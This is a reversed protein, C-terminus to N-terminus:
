QNLILRKDGSKISFWVSDTLYITDITKLNFDNINNKLYGYGKYGEVYSWKVEDYKVQIDYDIGDKKLCSQIVLIDTGRANEFSGELYGLNIEDEAILAETKIAGNILVYSKGKPLYYRRLVNNVPGTLIISDQGNFVTYHTNKFLKFSQQLYNFKEVERSVYFYQFGFLLIVLFRSMHINRIAYNVLWCVGVIGLSFLVNLFIFQKDGNFLKILIVCFCFAGIALSNLNYIRNLRHVLIEYDKEVKKAPSLSSLTREASQFLRDDIEKKAKYINQTDGIVEVVEKEKIYLFDYNFLTKLTKKTVNLDNSQASKLVKSLLHLEYQESPKKDGYYSGDLDKDFYIIYKDDFFSFHIEYYISEYFSIRSSILRKYKTNKADFFVILRDYLHHSKLEEFYESSFRNEELELLCNQPSFGFKSAKAPDFGPIPDATIFVTEDQVKFEAKVIFYNDLTKWGFCQHCKVEGKGLCSSCSSSGSGGCYHCNRFGNRCNYCANYGRGHCDSCRELKQSFGIRRYGQGQCTRCDMEGRGACILCHNEGAGGCIKCLNEGFGRCDACPLKGDQQCIDCETAFHSEKIEVFEESDQYKSKCVIKYDWLNFESGRKVGIESGKINVTRKEVLTRNEFFNELTCTHFRVEYSSEITLQGEKFYDKDFKFKRLERQILSLFKDQEVSIRATKYNKVERLKDSV